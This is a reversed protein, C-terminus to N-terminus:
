SSKLAVEINVIIHIHNKDMSKGVHNFISSLVAKEEAGRCECRHWYRSTRLLGPINTRSSSADGHDGLRLTHPAIYTHTKPTHTASMSYYSLWGGDRMVLLM